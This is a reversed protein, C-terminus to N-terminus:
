RRLRRVFQSIEYSVGFRLFVPLSTSSLGFSPSVKLDIGSALTWEIVPAIYHSTDRLNLAWSDGLGGYSEVGVRFNEPCLNCVDPTARLALSHSVGTAYGFEWPAHVVNKEVILDESINWGRWNSGLLLKGEVERKKELRSSANPNALDAEGDHGVVELLTKDAGNTNEFELYLVPNIWHEQKTLRFRNEWRSGSFLSSDGVTVQGDLYVETTWWGLSGYEFEIASALFRNGSAPRAAIGRTEIELNGQEELQHTYTVFYPGEAAQCFTAFM